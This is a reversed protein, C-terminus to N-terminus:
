LIDLFLFVALLMNKILMVKLKMLLLYGIKLSNLIYNLDSSTCKYLNIDINDNLYKLRQMLRDIEKSSNNYREKM